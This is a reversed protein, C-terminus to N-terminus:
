VRVMRYTSMLGQDEYRSTVEYVAILGDTENGGDTAAAAHERSDFIRLRASVLQGSTDYITNDIFANEHSLGLLRTLKESIGDLNDNTVTIQEQERPYSVDEVTRGPDSYVTFVAVYTGSRTPVFASEYRGRSVHVLDLVWGPASAGTPFVEARPYRDEAGDSLLLVLPVTDGVSYVSSM